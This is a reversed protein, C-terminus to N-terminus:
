LLSFWRLALRIAVILILVGTVRRVWDESLKFVGYNNGVYGGIIVAAFLPWYASVEHSLDLRKLKLYQGGLGALSNVLIFVSCCAAITKPSAWRYFHLVPALFIGGGIGVIGSYFGIGAGLAFLEKRKLRQDHGEQVKDPNYLLLRLGAIFLAVWLLGIFMTESVPIQGGLWAAPVSVSVLPLLKKFDIFGQSYYRVSNGLVVLINCILAIIPIFLYNTGSIALLATYTSGGGFGVSAYVCATIFFLAVLVSINM